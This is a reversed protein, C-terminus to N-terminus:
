SAVETLAPVTDKPALSAFIAFEKDTYTTTVTQEGNWVCHFGLKQDPDALFVADGKNFAFILVHGPFRGDTQIDGERAVPSPRTGEKGLLALGQENYLQFAVLGTEADDAGAIIKGDEFKFSGDPLPDIHSSVSYGFVSGGLLDNFIDEFSAPAKPKGATLQKFVEESSVRGYADAAARADDGEYIVEPKKGPAGSSIKFITKTVPEGVIPLIVSGSETGLYSFPEKSLGVLPQGVNYRSSALTLLRLKM